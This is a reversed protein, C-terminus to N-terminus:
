KRSAVAIVCEGSKADFPFQEEGFREGFQATMKQTGYSLDPMVFRGEADTRCCLHSYLFYNTMNSVVAGQLPHGKEDVVKGRLTRGPKLVVEGFAGIGAQKVDALSLEPTQAGDYGPKVVMMRIRNGPEFYTHELPVDQLQFKGQADTKAHLTSMGGGNGFQFSATVKAGEVPKGSEDVASGRFVIAPATTIRKAHFRLVAKGAEVLVEPGEVVASRGVTDRLRVAKRDPLAEPAGKIQQAEFGEEIELKGQVIEYPNPFTRLACQFGYPGGAHPITM